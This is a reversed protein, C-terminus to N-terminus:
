DQTMCRQQYNRSLEFLTTYLTKVYGSLDADVAAMRKELVEQERAPDYVPLGNEKKYKGIELAVKMRAEFCKVLQEDIENIQKRLEQMDM